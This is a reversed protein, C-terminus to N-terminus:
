RVYAKWPKGTSGESGAGIWHFTGGRRQCVAMWCHAQHECPLLNSESCHEFGQHNIILKRTLSGKIDQTKKEDDVSPADVDDV